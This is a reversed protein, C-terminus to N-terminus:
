KKNPYNIEYIKKLGDKLNTDPKYGTLKMLKNSSGVRREVEYDYRKKPADIYTINSEAKTIDKIENALESISWESENAINVIHSGKIGILKYCANITDEIYTFDRTQDGSGFVTIDEQDKCQEFFRPVVMRNDQNWGYVNFFRISIVNIGREEHHSALYIENYRKAMAYSTRPDVMVEETLANKVIASHSYIGSTSAYLIYKVNNTESAEVVNRTGVVEVDMTEVPNDAVIDVGLVAAFHFIVDCGKSAELVLQRSRVDGKFFKIKSFTDKDLKNGRLLSDLVIVEHGKNVLLRTLNSGIFGAGGTVLIKM